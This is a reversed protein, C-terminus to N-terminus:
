KTDSTSSDQTNLVRRSYEAVHEVGRSSAVHLNQATVRPNILTNHLEAISSSCAAAPDGSASLMGKWYENGPFANSDWAFTSVLITGAPVPAHLNRQSFHVTVSTDPFVEGNGVGCCTSAKTWSFDLHAIHTTDTAKLAAGWADVYLQNQHSSVRWVGLGLGVVHVYAKKGAAAARVGAEALLTEASLQIRAQYVQSNLFMRSSLNIFIGEPAEEAQKWTPLPVTGWLRGWERVLWRKKPPSDGYGRDHTNQDPTVVCDQWEMVGEREFRTGVMGVIIGEPQYSGPAGPVGRNHRSGDNIFTSKSSVCVLAALKMEDYSMYEQLCVNAREHSHGIEEFGDCGETGDRLVYNDIPTFFVIPRKKLLRDVLDLLSLSSYLEKEKRRGYTRKYHLFAALLPLVRAHVLPYTSNVQEELSEQQLGGKLLTKLRATYVPFVVPFRDSKEMVEQLTVTPLPEVLALQRLHETLLDETLQEPSSSSGTDM